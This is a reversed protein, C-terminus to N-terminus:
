KPAFIIKVTGILGSETKGLYRTPITLYHNALTNYVDVEIQNEGEHLFKQIEFKWPAAVRTGVERGNVFVRASSVV